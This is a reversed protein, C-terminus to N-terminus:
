KAEAFQIRFPFEMDCPRGGCVAPKYKVRMLAFAVAKGVEPSPARHLQVSQAVGAANVSVYISVHGPVGLAAFVTRLESMVPGMGKEPFPPEDAEPMGEYHARLAAKEAPSFQAYPKDLPYPASTAYRGVREFQYGGPPPDFQRVFNRPEQAVSAAHWCLCAVAMVFPKLHPM